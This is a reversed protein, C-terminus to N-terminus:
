DFLDGHKLGELEVCKYCTGCPMPKGDADIEPADCTPCIDLIGVAKLYNVIDQKDVFEFPVCLNCTNGAIKNLGQFVQKFYEFYHWICDGKIYGFCINKPSGAMLEGVAGLWLLPQGLGYYGDGHGCCLTARKEAVFHVNGFHQTFYEKLKERASGDLSASRVSDVDLSVAYIENERYKTALAHLLATSDLGGSWYVCILRDLDIPTHNPNNTDELRELLYNRYSACRASYKEQKETEELDTFCDLVEQPLVIGQEDVLQNIAQSIKETYAKSFASCM